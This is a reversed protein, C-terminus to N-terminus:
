EDAPEAQANLPYRAAERAKAPLLHRLANVCQKVYGAPEGFYSENYSMCHLWVVLRIAPEQWAEVAATQAAPQPPAALQGQLWEKYCRATMSAPGNNLADASYGTIKEHSYWANGFQIGQADVKIIPAAATQATSAVLDMDDELVDVEAVEFEQRSEFASYVGQFQRGVKQPKIVDGILGAGHHGLLVYITEKGIYRFRTGLPADFLKMRINM